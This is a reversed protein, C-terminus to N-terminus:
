GGTSYINKQPKLRLWLPGKRHVLRLLRPGIAGSWNRSGPFFWNPRGSARGRVERVLSAPEMGSFYFQPELLSGPASLRGQERAMSTLEAGPYLRIGTMAIVAKPRLRDMLEVTEKITEPTEGPAGFLLSHCFEVGARRCAQSARVVDDVGFGKRLSHLVEGSGSDTGFDVAVCGARKLLGFVSTDRVRPKLYCSLSIDLGKRAIAELVRCMHGEDSNFLSNVIFFDKRSFKGNLFAIEEAVAEPPRPRVNRGEVLPYTCYICKGPCGRATQIGVTRYSRFRPFVEDMNGPFSIDDPLVARGQFIGKGGGNLFCIAEAEGEGTVGADAGALQLLEEPFLSFGSGGLLVRASTRSRVAHVLSLYGPVYFQTSPYSANDINRLSLGVVHPAFAAIEKGLERHPSRYLGADFIRVAAGQRELAGAIYALSLPFVPEPFHERNASVLLVRQM